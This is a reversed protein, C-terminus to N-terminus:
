PPSWWAPRAAAAAAGDSGPTFSITDSRRSRSTSSKKWASPGPQCSRMLAASRLAAPFYRRVRSRYDCRRRITLRTCGRSSCAVCGAILPMTSFRMIIPLLASSLAASSRRGSLRDDFVFTYLRFVSRLPGAASLCVAGAIGSFGGFVFNVVAYQVSAYSLSVDAARCTAAPRNPRFIAIFACCPTSPSHVHRGVTRYTMFAASRPHRMIDALDHRNEAQIARRRARARRRPRRHAIRRNPHPRQTQRCLCIEATPM